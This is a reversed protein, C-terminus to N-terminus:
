ETKRYIKMKHIQEEVRQKAEELDINEPKVRREQSMIIIEREIACMIHFKKEERADYGLSVLMCHILKSERLLEGKRFKSDVLGVALRSGYEFMKKAIEWGDTGYEKVEPQYDAIGSQDADILDAVNDVYKRFLNNVDNRHVDESLELRIELRNGEYFFHFSNLVRRSVFYDVLPKVIGLILRKHRSERDLTYFKKSFVLIINHWM